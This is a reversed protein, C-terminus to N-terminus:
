GAGKAARIGEPQIATEGDKTSKRIKQEEEAWKLEARLNDYM